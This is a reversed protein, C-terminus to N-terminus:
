GKSRTTTKRGVIAYDQYGYLLNDLQDRIQNVGEALHMEANSLRDLDIEKLREEASFPRLDVREVSEFSAQEFMLALTDPHVPRRHTPDRWFNRASVVLSLPNPTELIMVGGPKLVRWGLRIMQFLTEDPLHEIVHLSVIADLSDPDTEALEALLDAEKAQLGAQVCRSVMEASSDVGRAAFGNEELVSLTEGRGCGLDLIEGKPPLFPLYIDVRQRIDKETGRFRDELSIYAEEDWTGNLNENQKGSEQAEGLALLAGLKGNLNESSRRYRDVKQDVVAYLADSHRMVDGFGDRKFSELHSVRRHNNQVDRLLDTRVEELDRVLDDRVQDVTRGLDEIRELYELVVLNHAKQRDWLDAQPAKVLPRVLRKLFVVLRGLIGRRHSQIPFQQDEMWLWRWRSLDRTPEGLFDEISPDPGPDTTEPDSM